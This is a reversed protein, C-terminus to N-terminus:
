GTRRGLLWRTAALAAGAAAMDALLDALESDRHLMPIAQVLEIAGGFITLAVFLRVASQARFGFTALAGLTAFALMHLIKDSPQGPIRPPHPLAAMVFVLLAAVVFAIRATRALPSDSELPRSATVEPTDWIDQFGREGPHDSAENQDSPM